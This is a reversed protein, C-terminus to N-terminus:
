EDVTLLNGDVYFETVWDDTVFISNVEVPIETGNVTLTEFECIWDPATEGTFTFFAFGLIFVNYYRGGKEYSYLLGIKQENNYVLRYDGVPIEKYGILLNEVVCFGGINVSEDRTIDFYYFDYAKTHVVPNDAFVDAAQKSTFGYDEFVRFYYLWLVSVVVVYVSVVAIIIRNVIKKKNKKVVVKEPEDTVLYGDPVNYFEGLATISEKSPVGKGSEWKAVASRSVFIADALEQQSVGRKKRLEKLKECLEM